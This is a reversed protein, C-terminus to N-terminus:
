MVLFQICYLSDLQMNHLHMVERFAHSDAPSVEPGYNISLAYGTNNIYLRTLHM